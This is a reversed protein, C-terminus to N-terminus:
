VIGNVEGVEIWGPVRRRHGPVCGPRTIMEASGLDRAAVCGRHALGDIGAVRWVVDIGIGVARAARCEM